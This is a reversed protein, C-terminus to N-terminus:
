SITDYFSFLSYTSVTVGIEPREDQAQIIFTHYDHDVLQLDVLSHIVTRNDACGSKRNTFTGDSTISTYNATVCHKAPVFENPVQLIVYWRESYKEIDFEPMRPVDSCFGLHVFSPMIAARAQSMVACVILSFYLKM